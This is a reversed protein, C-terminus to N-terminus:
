FRFKTSIGVTRPPTATIFHGGLIPDNIDTLIGRDNFLNNIFFASSWHETNLAVRLNVMDYGPLKVRITRDFDSHSSGVHQYDGHVSAERDGFASFYYSVALNATFRPVGPIAEGAIGGLNPADDALEAVNYSAGVAFDVSDTPRSVVEIEIGDSVAKGANEIFSVGCSLLKSTQIDSWDISYVAGNLQV